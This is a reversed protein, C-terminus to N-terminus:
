NGDNGHREIRYRIVEFRLRPAFNEITVILAFNRTLLNDNAGSRYRGARGNTIVGMRAILNPEHQLASQGQLGAPLRIPHQM